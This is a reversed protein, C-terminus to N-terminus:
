PEESSTLFAPVGGTLALRRLDGGGTVSSRPIGLAAMMEGGSEAEDSLSSSLRGSIRPLFSPFSLSATLWIGWGRVGDGGLLSELSLGPSTVGRLMTCVLKLAMLRLSRGLDPRRPWTRDAVSGLTDAIMVDASFEWVTESSESSSKLGLGGITRLFDPSSTRGARRPCLRGELM